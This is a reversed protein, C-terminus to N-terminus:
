RPKVPYKKFIDSVAKNVPGELKNVDTYSNTSLAAWASTKTASDILNIV